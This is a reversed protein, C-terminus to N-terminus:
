LLSIQEHERFLDRRCYLSYTEQQRGVGTLQTVREREWGDDYWFCVAILNYIIRLHSYITPQKNTLKNGKLFVRKKKVEEEINKRYKEDM